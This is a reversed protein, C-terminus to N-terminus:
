FNILEISMFAVLLTESTFQAVCSPWTQNAGILSTVLPRLFSSKSWHLTADSPLPSSAATTRLSSAGHELEVQINNYCMDFFKALTKEPDANAVCEVLQHIARVANSRVTTSAYNFVM